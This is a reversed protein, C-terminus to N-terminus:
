ESKAEEEIEKIRAEKVRLQKIIEACESKKQEYDDREMGFLEVQEVDEKYKELTTKLEYIDQWLLETETPPLPEAVQFRRKGDEDPEIENIVLGNANCYTAVNSYDKDDYFTYGIEYTKM